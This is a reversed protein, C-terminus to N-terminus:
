SENIAIVIQGQSASAGSLTHFCSVLDGAVLSVSGTSTGTTNADIITIVIATNVGNKRLTFTRSNGVGPSNVLNVRFGTLTSTQYILSQGASETVSQGGTQVYQNNLFNGNPNLRIFTTTPLTAPIWQSGNYQLYQNTTPATSNIDVGQIQIANAKYNRWVSGDYVQYLSLTTDYVILGTAPSTIANKQATTMRPPLFGTTTSDLQLLASASNNSNTTANTINVGNQMRIKFNNNQSNSNVIAQTDNFMIAGSCVGMTSYSGVQLTDSGGNSVCNFGNLICSRTAPASSSISNSQGGFINHIQVDALISCFKAGVITSSGVQITNNNGGINASNGGAVISSQSAWNAGASGFYGFNGNLMSANGSGDFGLISNATGTIGSASTISSLSRSEIAGTGVNRTLNASNTNNTPPVQTLNVAPANLNIILGGIINNTGSAQNTTNVASQITINNDAVLSIDATGAGQAFLTIDGVTSNLIIGGVNAPNNIDIYNISGDTMLLRFGGTTLTRNATLTGNTTYINTATPTAGYSVLHTGADYFLVNTKVISPISPLRVNASDIDIQTASNFVVEGVPSNLTISTNVGDTMVLSNAGTTLTRNATLTGNTNYINAMPPPTPLAEPQWQDTGLDYTLVDNDNAGASSINTGQLYVANVNLDSPISSTNFNPYFSM